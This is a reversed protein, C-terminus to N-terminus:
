GNNNHFSKNSNKSRAKNLAILRERSKENRICGCSKTLGNTLHGKEVLTIQGCDCQCRWYKYEGLRYAYNLAVLRGFRRGTIDITPRGKKM